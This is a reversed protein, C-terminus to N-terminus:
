LCGYFLENYFYHKKILHTGAVVQGLINQRGM